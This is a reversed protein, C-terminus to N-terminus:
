APFERYLTAVIEGYAERINGKSFRIENIGSQNSFSECGEERLVIVREFGLAGQFLGTEHVVNERARLGGDGHEDEATHVLIAFSAHRLLRQLVEKVSLGARPGVEYADIKFGQLHELHDALERWLPSHGHGIFVRPKPPPPVEYSPEPLKSSEVADEFVEFVSEVQYREPLYVSVSSSQGLFSFDLSETIMADGYFIGAQSIEKRYEAFFEEEKDFTWEELGTRTHPSSASKVWQRNEEPLCQLFVQHAAKIVSAPFKVGPYEKRKRLL